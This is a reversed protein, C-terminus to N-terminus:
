EMSSASSISMSVSMERARRVPPAPTFFSRAFKSSSERDVDITAGPSVTM